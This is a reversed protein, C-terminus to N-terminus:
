LSAGVPAAFDPGGPWRKSPSQPDVIAQVSDALIYRDLIGTLRLRRIVPEPPASFHGVALMTM